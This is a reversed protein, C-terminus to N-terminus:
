RLAARARRLRAHQAEDQSLSRARATQAKQSACMRSYAERKSAAARVYSCPRAGLSFAAGSPCYAKTPYPRAGVLAAPRAFRSLARAASGGSLSLARATQAKQKKVIACICTLKGNPPRPQCSPARGHMSSSPRGAPVTHKQLTHDSELWRPPARARRLRAHQAEEESLSLARPNRKKVQARALYAERKSATAPVDSYPRAGLSVVTGSVCHAETLYRGVGVLVTPRACTGLM